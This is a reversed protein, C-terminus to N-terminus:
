SFPVSFHSDANPFYRPVEQPFMNEWTFLNLERDATAAASATGTQTTSGSAAGSSSAGSCGALLGVSLSLAAVASFIRKM